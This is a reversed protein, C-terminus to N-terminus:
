KGGAYGLRTGNPDTFLVVYHGEGAKTRPMLVTGGIEGVRELDLEIDESPVSLITEGPHVVACVAELGAHVDVFGGGINDATFWSYPTPASDHRVDWGYLTTYFHATADRDNATIDIHM